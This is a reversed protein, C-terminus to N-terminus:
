ILLKQVIFNLILTFFVSNVVVSPSFDSALNEGAEVNVLPFRSVTDSVPEANVANDGGVPATARHMGNSLAGFLVAAASVSLPKVPSVPTAIVGEVFEFFIGNM